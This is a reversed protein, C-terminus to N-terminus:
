RLPYWFKYSAGLSFISIQKHNDFNNIFDNKLMIELGHRKTLNLDYGVSANPFIRVSAESDNVIAASVGAGAFFRKVFYHRLGTGFQYVNNDNEVGPADAYDPVGIEALDIHTDVSTSRGLRINWHMTTFWSQNYNTAAPHNIGVGLSLSNRIQAHAGVSTLLLLVLCQLYKMHCILM